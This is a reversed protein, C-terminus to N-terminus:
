KKRKVLIVGSITIGALPNRAKKLTYDVVVLQSKAGIPSPSQLWPYLFIALNTHKLEDM